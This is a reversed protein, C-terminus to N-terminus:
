RSGSTYRIRQHFGITGDDHRCQEVATFVEDRVDALRDPPIAQWFQRQGVSMSWRQWQEADDFVVRLDLLTTGIDDFGADAVLGEMGADSAFPGAAGTTRADPTATTAHRRLTEDVTERWREDYPGFTSVCVRGGPVLLDRWARLAQAPDPLFFLVLSSVVLDFTAPAFPPDMADGLVLGPRVGTAAAARAASEVMRPSIDIGIATGTPGVRGGLALLVAGRGCGVDLGREGPMPRVADLLGHAIPQFFDVGVADYTEAVADFLVAVASREGM